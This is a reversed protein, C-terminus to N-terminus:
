RQQDMSRPLVSPDVLLTRPIDIPHWLSLIPPLLSALMAIGEPEEADGVWGIKIPGCGPELVLPTLSFPVPLSRDQNATWVHNCDDMATLTLKMQMGASTGVGLVYYGPAINFPAGQPAAGARGTALGGLITPITVGQIVDRPFLVREVVGPAPVLLLGGSVAVTPVEEVSPTRLEIGVLPLVEQETMNMGAVQAGNVELTRALAGYSLIKNASERQLAYTSVDPAHLLRGFFLIGALWLAAAVGARQPIPGPREDDILRDLGLGVYLALGHAAAVIQQVESVQAFPAMVAVSVPYMVLGPPLDDRRRVLVAGVLLLLLLGSKTPWIACILWFAAAGGLWGARGAPTSLPAEAWLDRLLVLGLILAPIGAGLAVGSTDPGPWCNMLLRAHEALFGFIRSSLPTGLTELREVNASHWTWLFAGFGLVVLAPTLQIQRGRAGGRWASWAMATATIPYIFSGPEKFLASGLMLLAAVPLWRPRTLARQAAVLGWIGLATEGASNMLANWDMLRAWGLGAIALLGTLLAARYSRGLARALVMLGLVALGNLLELVLHQGWYAGDSLYTGLWLAMLTLPRVHDHLAHRETLAKWPADRYELTWRLNHLDDEHYWGRFSPVAIRLAVLVLLALLLGNALFAGLSGKGPRQAGIGGASPPQM